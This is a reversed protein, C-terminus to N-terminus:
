SIPYQARVFLRRVLSVTRCTYVRESRIRISCTFMEVYNKFAETATSVSVRTTHTLTICVFPGREPRAGASSGTRVNGDRM